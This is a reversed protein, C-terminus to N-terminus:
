GGPHLRRAEPTGNALFRILDAQEPLRALEESAVLEGRMLLEYFGNGDEDLELHFHFADNRFAVHLGGDELPTMRGPPIQPIKGELFGLWQSATALARRQVPHTEDASAYDIWDAAHRWGPAPQVRSEEGAFHPLLVPAVAPAFRDDASVDSFAPTQPRPRSLSLTAADSM